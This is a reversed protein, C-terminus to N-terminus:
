RAGWFPSRLLDAFLVSIQKKPILLSFRAKHQDFKSRVEGSTSDPQAVLRQVHREGIELTLIGLGFFRLFM